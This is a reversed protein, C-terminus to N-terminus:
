RYSACIQGVEYCYIEVSQNNELAQVIPYATNYEELTIKGSSILANKVGSLGLSLMKRKRITDLKPQVKRLSVVHFSEKQLLEPLKAFYRDDSQQIEFQLQDYRKIIDMGETDPVSYITDNGTGDEIIFLGGPKLVSKVQQIVKLPDKVHILLFRVYVIDFKEKLRDLEFVSCQQFKLNKPAKQPLLAKAVSLQEESNDIALVFGEDGVLSALHQSVLGIGCGLELVRNGQAVGCNEFFEFAFPNCVENLILLRDKDENGTAIIYQSENSHGLISSEM